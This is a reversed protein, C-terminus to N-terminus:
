TLLQCSKIFIDSTTSMDLTTAFVDTDFAMSITKGLKIEVHARVRTYVWYEWM